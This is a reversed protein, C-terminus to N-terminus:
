ERLYDFKLGSAGEGRGPSVLFYKWTKTSGDIWRARATKVKISIAARSLTEENVTHEPGIRQLFQTKPYMEEIGNDEVHFMRGQRYMIERYSNPIHAPLYPIWHAPVSSALRFEPMARSGTEELSLAELAEVALRVREQAALVAESLAEPTGADIADQIAAELETNAAALEQQVAELQALRDADKKEKLRRTQDRYDEYGSFSKGLGNCITHEVAWAMNARDDRIFRVEEIETSEEKKTTTPPLFFWPANRFVIRSEFDNSVINNDSMSMGFMNWSKRWDEEPESGAQHIEHEEGFVDTVTLSKVRCLSGIELPVPITFWDNAYLLAFEMAFVTGLDTKQVALSDTFVRRDEIEYWRTKPSGRFFINTPIIEISKEKQVVSRDEGALQEQGLFSDQRSDVIFSYWDLDGGTHEDCLLVVDKDGNSPDPAQLASEYEFSESKFASDADQITTLPGFMKEYTDVFQEIVPRIKNIAEESLGPIISFDFDSKLIHAEILKQGDLVKGAMSKIFRKTEDDVTTEEEHTLMPFMYKSRLYNLFPEADAINSVSQECLQGIKIRETVSLAFSVKEIEQELPRADTYLKVLHATGPFGRSFRTIRSTKLSVRTRIPSGADEGIFEGTLWQFALMGLPDKVRAKLGPMQDGRSRPEIRKWAREWSQINMPVMAAYPDGTTIDVDSM